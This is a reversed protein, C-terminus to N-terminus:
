CKGLKLDFRILIGESSLNDELKETATSSKSEKNKADDKGQGFDNPNFDFEKKLMDCYEEHSSVKRDKRFKSSISSYANMVDDKDIKSLSKAIKDSAFDLIRTQM